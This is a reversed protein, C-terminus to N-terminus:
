FHRGMNAFGIYHLVNQFLLALSATSQEKWKAHTQTCIKGKVWRELQSWLWLNLTYTIGNFHSAWFPLERYIEAKSGGAPGSYPSFGGLCM